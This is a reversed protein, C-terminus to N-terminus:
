DSAGTGPDALEALRGRTKEAGVLHGKREYLELAVRLEAIAEANQNALNLVEALDAHADAIM